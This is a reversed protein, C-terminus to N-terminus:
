RLDHPLTVTGPTRIARRAAEALYAKPDVGYLSASELLSYFLAAVETGRESKSGYHNKRGLVVGRLEREALNNHLPLLPDDLFRILGPWLGNMYEIAKRLKSERLGSQRKAWEQIKDVLLRSREDRAQKRLALANARESGALRDPDPVSREVAFLEGILEIVESCQPYFREAEVYERRVHSWCFGLILGPSGRALKQYVEYGDVMLRGRYGDLIKRAAQTSRSPDLHYYAADTSAIMWVYWKKAPKGKLLYWPTEDAHLTEKGYLHALLADYSARLHRALLEIQDWLTQSDVILGERGMIRVQRELPLHDLYKASAVEVAFDISYRGQPTLKLPAPATEPAAGCACRYKKRKHRKVVFHREIVDIEDGDETQGEWEVLQGGCAKCARDAEDLDHKEEVIPLVAQERPGHGTQPKKPAETSSDGKPARKESSAGYLRHQLLAMQEQLKMIELELQKPSDEGRLRAIEALLERLRAHLRANEKELLTAVQRATDLDDITDIRLM